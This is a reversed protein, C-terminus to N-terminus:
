GRVGLQWGPKLNGAWQVDYSSISNHDLYYYGYAGCQSALELDGKVSKAGVATTGEISM